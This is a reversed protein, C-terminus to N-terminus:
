AVRVGVCSLLMRYLKPPRIEIFIFHMFRVSRPNLIRSIFVDIFGRVAVHETESFHFRKVERKADVYIYIKWGQFLEEIYGRAVGNKRIERPRPTVTTLRLKERPSRSRFAHFTLTKNQFLLFPRDTEAM